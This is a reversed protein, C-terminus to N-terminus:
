TPACASCVGMEGGWPAPHVQIAPAALCAECLPGPLAPPPAGDLICLAEGDAAGDLIPIIQIGFYYAPILGVLARATAPDNVDM